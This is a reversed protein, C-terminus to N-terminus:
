YLPIAPDKGGILIHGKITRKNDALHVARAEHYRWGNFRLPYQYNTWGQSTLWPRSQIGIDPRGFHRTPLLTVPPITAPFFNELRFSGGSARLVMLTCGGTGCDGPSEIYVM